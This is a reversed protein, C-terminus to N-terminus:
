LESIWTAVLFVGVTNPKMSHNAKFTTRHLVNYVGRIKQGYLALVRMIILLDVVLMFM